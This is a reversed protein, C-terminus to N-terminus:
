KLDDIAKSGLQKQLRDARDQQAKLAKQLEANAKVVDDKAALAEAQAQKALTAATTARQENAKSEDLAKQLEVLTKKLAQESKGLKTDVVQKDAEVRKTAAEALQREHEKRQAEDLQHEAEQQSATAKAENEKAAVRSRQVVVLLAMMAVVVVSLFTFGGIVMRRRRRAQMLDYQVVADLFAREVDSLPGKYRRMFKKAEDATDGRWLMGTDNGKVHWQRAATRLQDVLAADDQNEDLWRRLMPWANVLSEHVIEVTSGKGGELTQVVLL